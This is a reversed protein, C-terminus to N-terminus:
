ESNAALLKERIGPITLDLFIEVQSSHDDPIVSFGLSRALKLMILNEKSVLGWIVKINKDLAILIMHSLLK